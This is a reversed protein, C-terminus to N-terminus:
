VATFTRPSGLWARTNPDSPTAEASIKAFIPAAKPVAFDPYAITATADSFGSNIKLDIMGTTIAPIKPMYPMIMAIMM